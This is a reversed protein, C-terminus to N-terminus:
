VVLQQGAQILTPIADINIERPSAGALPSLEVEADDEIDIGAEKLWRRSRSAQLAQSTAPSDEGHANKIPAFEDERKVRVVLSNKAMPLVDFVFTEFKVARCEGEISNVEKLAKHWPLSSAVQELFDRN